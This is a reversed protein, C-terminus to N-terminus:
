VKQFPLIDAKCVLDKPPLEGTSFYKAIHEFTCNSKTSSTAHGVAKQVLLGAGGFLGQMKKAASLPTVPDIENSAFLIPHSTNKASPVGEFVQSKPARFGLKTCQPAVVKSWGEGLYRSKKYLIDVHNKWKPLTDLLYRGNADNCAIFPLPELAQYQTVHPGLPDRFMGTNTFNAIADANGTALVSVMGALVPWYTIPDYPAIVLTTQFERYTFVSPTDVIAPDSVIAPRTKLQEIIADYKTQVAKPSESEAALPCLEKNEFCSTFFTEIAADADEINFEWKGAYYDEGDVVGDLIMRGVRQPFLSAFTSGLLTGYSVGWYWLKSQEPNQGNQKALLETYHLMDTATGVTNAYRASSNAGHYKTCFEGFAEGRRWTDVISEPGDAQVGLAAQPEYLIQTHKQLKPFCSLSPGSNNVGRPDFGVYNHQAGGAAVLYKIGSILYGVGSNGPGGPNVLIDQPPPSNSSNQAQPSTWKIFAIDTTGVSPEAYDLPVTLRTCTFNQFCPTWNLDASPTIQEWADIMTVNTGNTGYSIENRRLLPTAFSYSPLNALTMLLASMKAASNQKM